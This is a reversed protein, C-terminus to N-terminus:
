ISRSEFPSILRSPCEEGVHIPIYRAFDTEVVNHVCHERTSGIARAPVTTICSRKTMLPSVVSLVRLYRGLTDLHDHAPVGDTAISHAVTHIAILNPRAHRLIPIPIGTTGVNTFRDKCSRRSHFRRSIVDGKLSRRPGAEARNARTM